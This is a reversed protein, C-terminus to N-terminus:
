AGFFKLPLGNATVYGVFLQCLVSFLQRHIFKVASLCFSLQIKKKKERPHFKLM